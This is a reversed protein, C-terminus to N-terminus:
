SEAVIKWLKEEDDTSFSADQSLHFVPLKTLEALTKGNDEETGDRPTRGQNCALALCPVGRAKLASLSLLTHNLTGLGARAVLLVPLKWRAILDLLYLPPTRQIPVFLGGIGEVVTWAGKQLCAALDQDLKELQVAKGALEAAFHPSAPFPFHAGTKAYVGKVSQEIFALDESM